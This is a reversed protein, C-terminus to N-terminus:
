SLPESLHTAPAAALAVALVAAALGRLEAQLEVTKAGFAELFVHFTMFVAKLRKSFWAFPM